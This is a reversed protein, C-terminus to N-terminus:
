ITSTAQNKSIVPNAYIGLFIDDLIDSDCNDYESLLAMRNVFAEKQDSTYNDSFQTSGYKIDYAIYNNPHLKYAVNIRKDIIQAVSKAYENKTQHNLSLLEDHKLPPCIEIHVNGKPALIGTIISHLDEDPKKIYPAFRSEYLELTKLIDCTEWEYSVSVPVINLSELADIKDDTSSCMFMKILGPETCDVGDKTRGNRQAIWVSHKENTIAHRIYKSNLTTAHYFDMRNGGRIVKFMKNSKGIDVVVPHSMLNSGFTIESTEFGNTYLIYQLLSSDLMIDRHNSVFLYQKGFDLRDIGCYSFSTISRKIIQEIAASMVKHQFQDISVISNFLNKIHEIDQNPFIFSALLPFVESASIRRMAANIEADVYPRIEKFETCM